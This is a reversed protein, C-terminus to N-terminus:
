RSENFWDGERWFATCSQTPRRPAGASENDGEGPDISPPGSLAMVAVPLIDMVEINPKIYAKKKM